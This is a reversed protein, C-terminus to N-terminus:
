HGNNCEDGRSQRALCDKTPFPYNLSGDAVTSSTYISLQNGELAELWSGHWKIGTLQHELVLGPESGFTFEIQLNKMWVITSWSMFKPM